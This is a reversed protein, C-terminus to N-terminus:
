IEFSEKLDNGSVMEEFGCRKGDEKERGEELERMAENGERSFELFGVVAKMWRDGVGELLHSAHDSGGLSVWTKDGGDIGAFLHLVNSEESYPDHQGGIIMSPRTVLSPNLANFEHTNIWRAKFPDTELCAKSFRFAVDRSISDEVTFDELTEEKTNQLVSCGVDESFIPQRKYIYDRDYLSGFLVLKNIDSPYNQAVLQAVLAGQSWGLLSPTIPNCDDDLDVRDIGLAKSHRSTIWRLVDMCDRACKNPSITCEDDPPTLGFGRFDMMYPTIQSPFGKITSSDPLNYVPLSSWTRGHLLLLPASNLKPKSISYVTLPHGDVSSPVIHTTLGDIYESPVTDVTHRIPSPTSLSFSLGLPHAFATLLFLATKM